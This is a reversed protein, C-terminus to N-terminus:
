KNVVLKNLLLSDESTIRLIYMGTELLTIDITLLANEIIEQHLIKGLYSYILLQEGILSADNIRVSIFNNSPNPYVVFREKTSTFKISDDMNSISPIALESQYSISTDKGLLFDSMQEDLIEVDGGDDPIFSAMYAFLSFASFWSVCLLFYFITSKMMKNQELNNYTFLAKTLM